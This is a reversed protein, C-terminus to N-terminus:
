RPRCCSQRRLNRGQRHRKSRAVASQRAHARDETLSTEGGQVHAIVALNHDTETTNGVTLASKNAESGLCFFGEIEERKQFRAAHDHRIAPTQDRRIEDRGIAVYDVAPTKVRVVQDLHILYDQVQRTPRRWCRPRSRSRVRPRLRQSGLHLRIPSLNPSDCRCNLTRSDMSDSVNFPLELFVIVLMFALSEFSTTAPTHM